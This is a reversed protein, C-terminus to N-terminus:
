FSFHGQIDTCTNKPDLKKFEYINFDPLKLFEFSDLLSSPCHVLVVAFEFLKSTFVDTTM